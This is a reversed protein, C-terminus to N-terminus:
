RNAAIKARIDKAMQDPPTEQTYNGLFQGKTDMLYVIGTHDLTYNGDPQDHVQYYVRYAKAAAAIDADSGTLGVFRPGFPVLYAKIAEPTDRKPDITIFIPVVRDAEAGMMDLAAQMVALTTPCVDPCYTYGFFVLMFKGRFETDTRTMGTSDTLTFPGGIATTPAAAEAPGAPANQRLNGLHWLYGGLAIAVVLLGVLLALSGQRVIM